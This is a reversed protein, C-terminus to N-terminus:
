QLQQKISRMSVACDIADRGKHGHTGGVRALAQEDNETTLVGFIVPINYDLMVRQCGQSVQDCVYDYHSTEGRIVAGLAVIVEVKQKKALLQAVFPIEVAGPVEVLTIDESKFGLEILRDLAGKKLASTILENFTSVVLAIPFTVGDSVITKIERM